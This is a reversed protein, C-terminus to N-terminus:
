RHESIELENSEFRIMELLVYTKQRKFHANFERQQEQVLNGCNKQQKKKKLSSIINLEQFYQSVQKSRPKVFNDVSTRHFNQCQKSKARVKRERIVVQYKCLDESDDICHLM